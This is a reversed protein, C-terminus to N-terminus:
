ENLNLCLQKLRTFNTRKHQQAKVQRLVLLKFCINIVNFGNSSYSLTAFSSM